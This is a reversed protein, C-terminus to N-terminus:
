TCVTTEVNSQMQSKTPLRLSGPGESHTSPTPSPTRTTQLHSAHLPALKNPFDATETQMSTLIMAKMEDALIKMQQTQKEALMKMQQTQQEAQIKMKQAQEEPQIKMQQAQQEAQVKM